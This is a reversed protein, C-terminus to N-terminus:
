TKAASVQVEKPGAQRTKPSVLRRLGRGLRKLGIWLGFASVAAGGLNLAIMGSQWALRNRYWFSFDLSHFGNYLWRQIREGRHIQGAVQGMLPDIYVWTQKPDDFKARLVPLTNQERDYYHPYYYSDYDTLLTSELIYADPVAKKLREVLSAASFGDKRIELPNAAVLLRQSDAVRVVYYPDGQIRTFEIEKIERDPLLRTWAARDWSPFQAVDLGGGTFPETDVELDAGSVWEWPDMSLLGSFVWTLTFIGFVVGTIYHWRM